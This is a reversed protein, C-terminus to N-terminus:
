LEVILVMPRVGLARATALRTNGSILHTQGDPSKLIVPMQMPLGERFGALIGKFDKEYEEGIREADELFGPRVKSWSDSNGLETWKEDSLEEPSANTIAKQLQELVGEQNADPYFTKAVREMEGLEELVEPRVWSADHSKEEGEARNETDSATSDEPKLGMEEPSPGGKEISM